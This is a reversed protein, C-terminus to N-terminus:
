AIRSLQGGNERDSATCAQHAREVCAYTNRVDGLSQLTLQAQWWTLHRRRNAAHTPGWPFGQLGGHSAGWALYEAIVDAIPRHRHTEEPKPEPLYGQRILHEEDEKHRMLALTQQPDRTGMRFRRTGERDTYWGRYKGNSRPQHDVGAM